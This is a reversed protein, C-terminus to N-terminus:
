KKEDHLEMMFKLLEYSEKQEQVHRKIINKLLRSKAKRM